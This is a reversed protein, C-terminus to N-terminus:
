RLRPGFTVPKQPNNCGIASATFNILLSTTRGEFALLSIKKNAGNNARVAENVLQLM